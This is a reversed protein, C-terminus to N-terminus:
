LGGGQQFPSKNKLYPATPTIAPTRIDGDRHSESLIPDVIRSFLILWSAPHWRALAAIM